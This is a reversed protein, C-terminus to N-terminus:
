GSRRFSDISFSGAGTALLALAGGLLILDKNFIESHMPFLGVAVIYSILMLAALIASLTTWLGVFLLAGIILEGWPLMVGYLIALQDPLLGFNRVTEIFGEINELKMRGALMLYLGIPVRIFMGSLNVDWIPTNIAM